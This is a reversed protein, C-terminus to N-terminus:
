SRTALTIFPSLTNSSNAPTLASSWWPRGDVRMIFRVALQDTLFEVHMSQDQRVGGKSITVYEGFDAFILDGVTGLTACQEIAEIPRGLMTASPPGMLTGGPLMVPAGGTGVDQTLSMLEAETDQNNYWVANGRSRAWMRQWMKKVNESVITTAAQGSEKAVSVTADANLIGEPKGTGTGNIMADALLYDFEEAAAEAVYQELALGADEILEDTLYVLVAVKKLKLDLRGLGVKSSTLSDGEAVWYGRIGGRRNGDTRSTENDRPFSMSNGSVMFNNTRSWLNNDYVKRLINSSFEPLVAFGGDAGVSTSHGQIALQRKLKQRFEFPNEFGLAIYQGLNEFEQYPKYGRRKLPKLQADLRQQEEDSLDEWGEGYGGEHEGRGPIERQLKTPEPSELDQKERRWTEGTEAASLQKDIADKQEQLQDLRGLEEDTPGREEGEYRDIIALADDCLEQKKEKLQEISNTAM